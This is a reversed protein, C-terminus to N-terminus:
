EGHQLQLAGALLCLTQHHHWGTWSRVEYADLGIVSQSQDLSTTATTVASSMRVLTEVSMTVPANSLYYSGGGGDRNRCLVLWQERGPRREREDWVRLATGLLTLASSTAGDVAVRKWADSPVRAALERIKSPCPTCPLASGSGRGSHNGLSLVPLRRSVVAETFVSLTGPVELLYWWGEADLAERFAADQGCDGAGTVWRSTLQRRTRASRLLALALDAKSQYRVTDPIGTQHRRLGDEVWTRPLYLQMDVFAQAQPSAYALFIGIQCNLSAGHVGSAQRAVGVSHEGQKVFALEELVWMGQNSQLLPELLAYLHDIIPRHDWPAESLFRQFARPTAGAVAAALQEANRRATPATLLARLYQAGRRQWDSRGFLAALQTDICALAASLEAGIRQDIAQAHYSANKSM